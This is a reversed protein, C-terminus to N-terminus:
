DKYEAPNDKKKIEIDYFYNVPNKAFIYEYFRPLQFQKRELIVNMLETYSGSISFRRCDEAYLIENPDMDKLALAKRDYITNYKESM